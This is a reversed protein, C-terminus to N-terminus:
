SQQGSQGGAKFKSLDYVASVPRGKKTTKSDSEKNVTEFKHEEEDSESENKDEPIEEEFVEEIM